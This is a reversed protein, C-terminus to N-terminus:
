NECGAAVPLPMSSFLLKELVPRVHCVRDRAFVSLFTALHEEFCNSSSGRLIRFLSDFFDLTIVDLYLACRVSSRAVGDLNGFDISFMDSLISECLRTLGYGELSSCVTDESEDVANIIFDQGDSSIIANCSYRVMPNMFNMDQASLQVSVTLNESKMIKLLCDCSRMHRQRYRDFLFRSAQLLDPLALCGRGMLIYTKGCPEGVIADRGFLKRFDDSMFMTEVALILDKPWAGNLMIDGHIYFM